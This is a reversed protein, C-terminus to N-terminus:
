DCADWIPYAKDMAPIEEAQMWINKIGHSRRVYEEADRYLIEMASQGYANTEKGM